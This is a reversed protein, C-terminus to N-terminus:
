QSFEGKSKLASALHLLPPLLLACLEALPEQGEKAWVLYDKPVVEFRPLYLMHGVISTDSLRLHATVRGVDSLPRAYRQMVAELYSQPLRWAYAKEKRLQLHGDICVLKVFRTEDDTFEEDVTLESVEPSNLLAGQWLSALESM